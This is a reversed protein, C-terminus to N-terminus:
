RTRRRRRCRRRGPTRRRASPRVARRRPRARPQGRRTRRARSDRPRRAFRRAAARARSELEVENGPQRERLQRPRAHADVRHRATPADDVCASDVRDLEGARQEDRLAIVREHEGVHLERQEFVEVGFRRDGHELSQAQGVLADLLHRERLEVAPDVGVVEGREEDLDVGRCRGGGRLEDSQQQEGLSQAIGAPARPVRLLRVPREGSVEELLGVLHDLREVAQGIGSRVRREFVLQAVQEVLHHEVCHERLLGVLERHGVDCAPDVVLEHTAM